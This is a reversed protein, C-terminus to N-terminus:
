NFGQLKVRLEQLVKKNTDPHQMGEELITNIEALYKQRSQETKLTKVKNFLANVSNERWATEFLKRKYSVHNTARDWDEKQMLFSHILQSERMKELALNMRSHATDPKNSTMAIRISDSIIQFNRFLGAWGTSIKALERNVRKAEDPSMGYELVRLAEQSRIIDDRHFFGYCFGRVCSWFGM